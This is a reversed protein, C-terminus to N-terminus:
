LGREYQPVPQIGWLERFFLPAKSVIFILALKLNLPTHVKNNFTDQGADLCRREWCAATSTCSIIMEEVAAEYSIPCQMEM